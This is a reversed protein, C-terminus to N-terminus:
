FKEVKDFPFLRVAVRGLIDDESVLGVESSRSDLSYPRNDGMVFVKDEPITYVLCGDTLANVYDECLLRNNRYVEGNQIRIEDGEVGIVRKILLEGGELSSEFVIIDEYGPHEVDRYALKNVLLYNNEQLTDDMSSGKVIVPKICIIMACLMLGILFLFFANRIGTNGKSM